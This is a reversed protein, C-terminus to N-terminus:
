GIVEALEIIAEELMDLRDKDVYDSQEFDSETLGLKEMMERESETYEKAM